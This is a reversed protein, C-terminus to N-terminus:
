RRQRWAIVGSVIGVLLVGGVIVLWAVVGAMSRFCLYGIHYVCVPPGPGAFDSM